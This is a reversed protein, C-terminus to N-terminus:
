QAKKNNVKQDLGFPNGQKLGTVAARRGPSPPDDDSDTDERSDGQVPGMSMVAKKLVKLIMFFWLVHIPLLLALLFVLAKEVPTNGLYAATMSDCEPQGLGCGCKTNSNCKFATFVVQPYYYLRLVFFTVACMAFSIDPVIPMKLYHTCKALHLFPDFVNHLMLVVLGCRIYGTNLSMSILAITVLHHALMEFFDKKRYSVLLKFLGSFYWGFEILYYCKIEAPATFPPLDSNLQVSGDWMLESWHSPYLWTAEAGTLRFVAFVSLSYYVLEAFSVKFRDVKNTLGCATGVASGLLELGSSSVGMAVVLALIPVMEYPSDIKIRCLPAPMATSHPPAMGLFVEVARRLMFATDELAATLSALPPPVVSTM